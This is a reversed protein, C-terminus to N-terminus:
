LYYQNKVVVHDLAPGSPLTVNSRGIENYTRGDTVGTHVWDWFATTENVIRFMGYGYFTADRVHVWAEPEEQQFPAECKRGGAGVTIHIPGDPTVKEKAVNTTRLYAHIHGTFVMNVKQQIFLPEMHERAAIIQLDHHHLSFTNYIPTHLAAIVWPTVTRDVQNLEDQIWKYQTSDPEMSSYASIMIIKAPGYIFSYYANGFEYPFPYPPADMNLKGLPGDYLGLQPPHVRPMRFRNEYALFIQNDQPLKDIDHNGPCIMMPVRDVLPYDDLFDFFTDWRRHDNQTYAVDGVLLIADMQSRDRKLRMLTEESHPFQGLDGIIALSVQQTAGTPPATRFSRIKDPSPCEIDSPNYPSLLVRSDYPRLLMRDDEEDYDVDDGSEKRVSQDLAQEMEQENAFTSKTNKKNNSSRRLNYKEFDARSNQVVPKYYYTTSPQLQTLVVHHYYPSVYLGDSGYNGYKPATATINYSTPSAYLTDEDGEQRQQELVVTDLRDPSTGLLVGGIPAEFHSPISAFTVIMSSAPEPGVAIHVHRVAGGCHRPAVIERAVSSRSNYFLLSTVSIYHLFKM